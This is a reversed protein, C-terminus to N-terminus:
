AFGYPASNPDTSDDDNMYPPSYYNPEGNPFNRGNNGYIVNGQDMEPYDGYVQQIVGQQYQCYSILCGLKICDGLTTFMASLVTNGNMRLDAYILEFDAFQPILMSATVDDQPIDYTTVINPPNYMDGFFSNSFDIFPQYMYGFEKFVEIPEPFYVSHTYEVAHFSEQAIWYDM